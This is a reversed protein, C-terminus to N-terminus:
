SQYKLSSHKSRMHQMFTRKQKYSLKCIHCLFTRGCEKIHTKLYRLQTYKVSKCLPCSFRQEGNTLQISTKDALQANEMSLLAIIDHDLDNPTEVVFCFFKGILIRVCVCVTNSNMTNSKRLKFLHNLMYCLANRKRCKTYSM